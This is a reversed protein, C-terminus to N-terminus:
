LPVVAIIWVNLTSDAIICAQSHSFSRYLAFRALLSLLMMEFCLFLEMKTFQPQGQHGHSWREGHFMQARQSRGPIIRAINRLCGGDEATTKRHFATHQINVTLIQTWAEGRLGSQTYDLIKRWPVSRMLLWLLAAWHPKLHLNPKTAHLGWANFNYWVVNHSMSALSSWVPVQEKIRMEEKDRRPYRICHASCEWSGPLWFTLTIWPKTKSGAQICSADEGFGSFLGPILEGYSRCAALLQHLLSSPMTKGRLSM